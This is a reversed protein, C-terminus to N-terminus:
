LFLASYHHWLVIPALSEIEHARVRNVHLRQGYAGKNLQKLGLQLSPLVYLKVPESVLCTTLPLSRSLCLEWAAM